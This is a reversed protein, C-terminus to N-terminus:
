WQQNLNYKGIKTVKFSMASFIKYIHLDKSLNRNEKPIKLLAIILDFTM